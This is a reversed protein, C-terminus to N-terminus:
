NLASINYKIKKEPSSVQKLNDIDAKILNFFAFVTTKWAKLTCLAKEM